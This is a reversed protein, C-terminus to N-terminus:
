RRARKRTRKRTTKQVRKKVARKKAPTRRKIAARKKSSVSVAKPLSGFVNFVLLTSWASILLVVLLYVMSLYPEGVGEPTLGTVYMWLMNVVFIIAATGAVHWKHRIFAKKAEKIAESASTNGMFLVAERIFLTLIVLLVLAITIVSAIFPSFPEIFSYVILAVVMTLLLILFYLIKLMIVRAYWAKSAKFSTVLLSKKKGIAEKIMFLKWSKLRAGVFFTVLALLTLSVLLQAFNNEVHIPLEEPTVENIGTFTALFLVLLSAIIFFFVDPIILRPHLQRCSKKVEKWCM